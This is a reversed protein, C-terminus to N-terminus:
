HKREILENIGQLITQCQEFRSAFDELDTFDVGFQSEIQALLDMIMLSDFDLDEILMSDLMLSESVGAETMIEKIMKQLDDWTVM